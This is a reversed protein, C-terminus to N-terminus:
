KGAISLTLTINDTTSSCTINRVLTSNILTIFIASTFNKEGSIGNDYIELLIATIDKSETMVKNVSDSSFFRLELPDSQMGDRIKWEM